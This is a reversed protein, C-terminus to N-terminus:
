FGISPIHLYYNVCHTIIISSNLIISIDQNLAYYDLTKYSLQFQKINGVFVELERM